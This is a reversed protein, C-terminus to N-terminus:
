ILKKFKLFESKIDKVEFLASGVVLNNAGAELIKGANKLNVGGDVNIQLGPYVERLEAIKELVKEEFGHGYFGIEAISMLQVLDFRGAFKELVSLPTALNLVVGLEIGEGDLQEYIEGYNKVSEAHVLIRDAGYEIWDQIYDEPNEVMLHVEIKLDDTQITTIEALDSVAGEGIPWNKSPAFAGDTVDIQVWKALGAQGGFGQRLRSVKEIKEGVEKFNKGIVAPIIERQM